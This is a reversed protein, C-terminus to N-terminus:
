IFLRMCLLFLSHDKGLFIIVNRYKSAIENGNERESVHLYTFFFVLSLNNVVAEEVEYFALGTCASQFGGSVQCGMCGILSERFM